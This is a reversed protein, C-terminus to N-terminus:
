VAQDAGGHVLARHADSQALLLIVTEISLGVANVAWGGVAPGPVAATGLVQGRCVTGIGITLQSSRAVVTARAPEIAVTLFDGHPIAQPDPDAVFAAIEGFTRGTVSVCCPTLIVTLTAIPQDTSTGILVTRGMTPGAACWAEKMAVPATVFAAGAEISLDIRLVKAVGTQRVFFVAVRDGQITATLGSAAKQAM